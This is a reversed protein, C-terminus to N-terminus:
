GWGRADGGDNGWGVLCAVEDDGRRVLRVWVVCVEKGVMICVRDHVWGGACFCMDAVEESSAGVAM